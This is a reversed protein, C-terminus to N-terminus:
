NQDNGNQGMQVLPSLFSMKLSDMRQFLSSSTLNTLLFDSTVVGIFLMDVGEKSAIKPLKSIATDICTMVIKM